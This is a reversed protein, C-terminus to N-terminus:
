QDGVKVVFVKLDEKVGWDLANEHTDVALDIQDDALGGGTDQVIRIGVGEIYLMTGYPFKDTDSVAVSFDAQVPQGSATLGHGEGCIHEYKETCYATCDYEGVYELNFSEYANDYLDKTYQLRKDYSERTSTLLQHASELESTRSMLTSVAVALAVVLSLVVVILWKFVEIITSRKM